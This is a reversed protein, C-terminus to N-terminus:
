GKIAGETLGSIVYKQIFAYLVMIPLMALLFSAFALNVDFTYQSKFNYIFLPLTWLKEDRNLIILPLLFDNWIWLSDLILVTVTIPAMLPYIIKIFTLWINCGDIQAADELELPISKLYGVCLFVGQILSLSIYLVILGGRDMMKLNTMHKVLPLMIVQFPVFVGSVFFYYLIRYYLKDQNRAISYSVMPVLILIVIVSVVTIVVSNRVFGWFNTSNFIEVFNGLYLSSPLSFFSQASEEFTKFATIVTIYMPFLIVLVGLSLFFYIAVKAIKERSM